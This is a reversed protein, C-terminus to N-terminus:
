CLPRENRASQKRRRPQDEDLRALANQVHLAFMEAMDRSFNEKVVIRMVDISESANPLSYAPVSWGQEHLIECIQYVTYVHDDRLRIVVVPLTATDTLMEFRGLDLLCQALYRANGMINAIIKTYGDRGLRIFNFYQLVVQSAPRSFNLSYNLMEGGLYNINFVLESPICSADRFIVSGMGPYVLGYKHNSVNISRVQELRFDWAVEPHAFAMIFGGSAADVHMLIDLGREAKIRLLLSNIGAFDDSQGTFTTGIVVGVAITNEDILPEVQEPGITYQGPQLPIIRAEVDFYLAFKEWCSHVDAGFIVNPRHSDLGRAQRQKRWTWKHALLALMIAESSGVTSTGVATHRSERASCSGPAHLMDAMMNIVRQQIAQIIPYEHFDIFNISSTKLMLEDAEPEMWPTVFSATNLLPNGNLTLEDLILRQATRADMGAAPLHTRPAGECMHHSAYLAESTKPVLNVKHM